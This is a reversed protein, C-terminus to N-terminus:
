YCKFSVYPGRSWKQTTSKGYMWNWQKKKKKKKEPLLQRHTVSSTSSRQWFFFFASPFVNSRQHKTKPVPEHENNSKQLMLILSVSLRKVQSLNRWSHQAPTGPIVPGSLPELVPTRLPTRSRRVSCNFPSVHTPKIQTHSFRSLRLM